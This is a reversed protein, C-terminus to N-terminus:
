TLRLAPSRLLVETGDDRCRLDVRHMFAKMMALGRGRYGRDAPVPQWRGWDRVAIEVHRHGRLGGALLRAVIHVPGARRGPYAHDVVNATAEDVAMLIDDRQDRPWGLGDLWRRFRRRVRSPAATDAVLMIRLAPADDGASRPPRRPSPREGTQLSM